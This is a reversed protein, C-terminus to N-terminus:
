LAQALCALGVANCSLICMTLMHQTQRKTLLLPHGPLPVANGARLAHWVQVCPCCDCCRLCVVSCVDCSSPPIVQCNLGACSSSGCTGVDKYGVACRFHTAHVLGAARGSAILLQADADVWVEQLLM